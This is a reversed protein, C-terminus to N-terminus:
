LNSGTASTINRSGKHKFITGFLTDALANHWRQVAFGTVPLGVYTQVAGSNTEVGASTSQSFSMDVWGTAWNTDLDPDTVNEGIFYGRKSTSGLISSPVASDLQSDKSSFEVVNTEWCLTPADPIEGPPPEPSPPTICLLNGDEDFFPITNPPCSTITPEGEERNWYRGGFPECAGGTSLITTFPEIPPAGVYDRDVYFKKTPFTIVWETYAGLLDTIVYDNYINDHIYLASVADIGNGWTSEVTGGDSFIVSNFGFGSPSTDGITPFLSGPPTHNVTDQFGQIADANYSVAFGRALDVVAMTGYLGGNFNPDLMDEFPDVRWRNAPPNGFWSNQIATCNAPIGDLDHKIWAAHDSLPDVIGMEIVELHGERSREMNNQNADDNHFEFPKFQQNNIVQPATCSTDDTKLVVTENDNYVNFAANSTFIGLPGRNVDAGSLSATWVDYPSLYLNFDLVEKSAKGELFRVKVAKTQNTTNVISVLSNLGNNVTYYPFVLVQGLGDGNLSVTANSVSALGAVGALGAVVATTLNNRKM